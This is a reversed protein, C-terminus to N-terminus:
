MKFLLLLLQLFFQIILLILQSILGKHSMHSSGGGQGSPSDGLSQTPSIEPSTSTGTVDTAPIESTPVVTTPGGPIQTIAPSDIPCISNTSGGCVFTPVVRPPAITPVLSATPVVTPVTTPNVMPCPAIPVDGSPMKGVLDDM